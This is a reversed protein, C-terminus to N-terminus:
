STPRTEGCNEYRTVQFTFTGDSFAAGHNFPGPDVTTPPFPPEGAFGGRSVIKGQVSVVKGKFINSVGDANRYTYTCTGPVDFCSYPAFTEWKGGAWDKRIMYGQANYTTTRIAAHGPKDQYTKTQYTGDSSGVYEDVVAEGTSHVGHIKCGVPMLDFRVGPLPPGAFAPAALVLATAARGLGALCRKLDSCRNM